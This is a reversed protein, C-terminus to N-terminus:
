GVGAPAVEAVAGPTWETGFVKTPIERQNLYDAVRNDAWGYSRLTKITQRVAQDGPYSATTFRDKANIAAVKEPALDGELFEAGDIREEMRPTLPVDMILHVRETPGNVFGHLDDNDFTWAAGPAFHLARERAVLVAAENSLIPVHIRFHERWVPARDKHVLSVGHPLMRFIFAYKARGFPGEDGILGAMYPLDALLPHDFVEECAFDFQTGSNGGRLLLTGVSCHVDGWYSSAWASGPISDLEATLRGLDIGVDFRLFSRKRYKGTLM